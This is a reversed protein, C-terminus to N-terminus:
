ESQRQKRLHDLMKAYEILPTIESETIRNDHIINSILGLLPDREYSYNLNVPAYGSNLLLQDTDNESLGMVETIAIILDRAPVDREGRELRSIYSKDVKIRKALDSQSLGQSIRYQRLQKGFSKEVM